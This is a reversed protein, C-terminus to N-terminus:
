RSFFRTIYSPWLPAKKIKIRPLPIGQLNHLKRILYRKFQLDRTTKGPIAKKVFGVIQMTPNKTKNEKKAAYSKYYGFLDAMSERSRTVGDSYSAAYKTLPKKMFPKVVKDDELMHHIEHSIVRLLSSPRDEPRILKIQKSKHHAVGIFGKKLYEKIKKSDQPNSGKLTSHIYDTVQEVSPHDGKHISIKLGKLKEKSEDSLKSLVMGISTYIKRKLEDSYNGHVTVPIGNHFRKSYEEEIKEPTFHSHDGILRIKNGDIVIKGNDEQKGPSINISSEMKGTYKRHIKAAAQKIPKEKQEQFSKSISSLIPDKLTKDKKDGYITIIDKGHDVYVKPSGTDMPPYWNVRPRQGTIDEYHKEIDALM